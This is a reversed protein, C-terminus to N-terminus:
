ITYQLAENINPFTNKITKLSRMFGALFLFELNKEMSRLGLGHKSIKRQLLLKDRDTLEGLELTAAVAKSIAEDHQKAFDRSLHMPVAALLHQIRGPICQLLLILKEQTNSLKCISAIVDKTKNLNDQLKSLIFHDSGLPIGSLSFGHESGVYIVTHEPLAARIETVHHENMTHVYQKAPNVLYNAPKQLGNRSQEVSVLADLSDM